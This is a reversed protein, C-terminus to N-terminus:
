ITYLNFNKPFETNYSKLRLILGKTDISRRLKLFEYYNFPIKCDDSVYIESINEMKIGSPTKYNEKILVKYGNIGLVKIRDKKDTKIDYKVEWNETISNYDIIEYHEMQWNKRNILKKIQSPIFITKGDIDNIRVSDKFLYYNVNSNNGESIKKEFLSSTKKNSITTDTENINVGIKYSLFADRVTEDNKIDKIKCGTLILIIIVIFCKNM